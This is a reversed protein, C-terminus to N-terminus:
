EQLCSKESIIPLIKEKQGQNEEPTESWAVALLNSAVPCVNQSWGASVRRRAQRVATPPPLFSDYLIQWYGM